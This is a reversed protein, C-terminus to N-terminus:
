ASGTAACAARRALFVALVDDIRRDQDASFLVSDSDVGILDVPHRARIGTLGTTYVEAEGSNKFNQEFGAQWRAEARRPWRM